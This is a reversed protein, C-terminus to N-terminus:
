HNPLARRRLRLLGWGMVSLSTMLSLANLGWVRKLRLVVQHQGQPVPLAAWLGNAQSVPTPTGDVFAELDVSFPENFILLSSGKADVRAQTSLAYPMKRMAECPVNQPPLTSRTVSDPAVEAMPRSISGDQGARAIQEGAPVPGEWDYYLAPLAPWGIVEALVLSKDSPQVTRVSGAGIEFDCVVSLRNQQVFPVASKRPLLVFRTGTVHWYKVPNKQLPEFLDRLAQNDPKPTMNAFGNLDLAMGFWDQEGANSSVYNMVNAPRGGTRALMKQIVPNVAHHPGVNVPIVYRRAIGALDLTNLAVAVCACALLVRASVRQRSAKMFCVIVCGTLAVARLLNSGAYERLRAALEGFGLGVIHHEIATAHIQVAFYGVLLLLVVGTCFIVYRRRAAVVVGDTRLFYEIGYATLFANAIEVLHHFKVPARLYNMYPLYQYIMQYIPTYRGLSIVACVVWAGIWFPIDDFCPVAEGTASPLPDSKRRTVMWCAAAFLVFLVSVIGLYVTHQRYNPTMRGKQFAYPQGLRGWYPYPMQFSANGFLSPVIYELMDEPPLSWNTSFIWQEYKKQEEAQVSDAAADGQRPAAAENYQKERAALTETLAVKIQRSGILAIVLVTLIFRPYVSLIFSWSRQMRWERFSRWVGYAAILFVFLLWIDPQHIESWIITAGLVAFYYLHRTQFCRNILAFAFLGWSILMFYGGHGACFLTFSYGSFAFALGGGYASVRSLGQTRLYYFVSLAACFSTVMFFLEQRVFPPLAFLIFSYPVFGDKGTLLLELYQTRAWAPYYKPFDPSLMVWDLPLVPYFVYLMCGVFLAGFLLFCFVAPRKITHILGSM